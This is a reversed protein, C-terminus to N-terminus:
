GPLGQRDAIFDILDPDLSLDRARRRWTRAQDLHGRRLAVQALILAMRARLTPDAQPHDVLRLATQEAQDPRELILLAEAHAVWRARREPTDLPRDMRAPHSLLPLLGPYPADWAQGLVELVDDGLRDRGARRLAQTTALPRDRLTLRVAPPLPADPSLHSLSQVARDLDGSRIAATAALDHREARTLGQWAAAAEGRALGRGLTPAPAPDPRVGLIQFSQLDLVSRADPLDTGGIQITVPGDHVHHALSVRSDQWGTAPERIHCRALGEGADLSLRVHVQGLPEFWRTEARDVSAPERLAEGGCHLDLQTSGGGGILSLRLLALTEQGDTVALHLGSGFELAQVDVQADLVLFRGDWEAQHSLPVVGGLTDLRLTGQPHLRVSAPATLHWSDPLPQGREWTLGRARARAQQLLTAHADADAPHEIAELVRIEQDPHHARRWARAALPLADADGAAAAAELQHAAELVRDRALLVEGAWRHLAARHEPESLAVTGAQRAAEEALGGRALEQVRAATLGGAALEPVDISGTSPAPLRETGAGLVWTRQEPGPVRVILEDAADDDLQAAGLPVVGLLVRHELTGDALGRALLLGDREAQYHLAVDDLGDGDFDGVVPARLSVGEDVPIHQLVELRDGGDVLVYAGAPRGYPEDPGWVEPAPYQDVDVALLGTQGGVRLSVFTEVYGIRSRARTRWTGRERELIRIDYSWWPGVAAILEDQGDRDIDLLQLRMVDSRSASVDPAAPEPDQGPRWRLVRRDNLGLGLLVASGDLTHSLVPSDLRVTADLTDPMHGERAEHLEVLGVGASDDLTVVLPGQPGLPVPRSWAWEAGPPLPGTAWVPLGPAARALVMQGKMQDPLFILREGHLEMPFAGWAQWPTSSAPALARFLPAMPDDPRTRAALDLDHVLEAWAGRLAPDPGDLAELRDLTIGLAATDRADLHARAVARLVDERAGAKIFAEGVARRAHTRHGATRLRAAHDLWARAAAQTDRVTPDDTLAEILRNAEDFEDDQVLRDLTAGITQLRRSAEVEAQSAQWSSLGRGGLIVLGLLIAAALLSRGLVRNRWSFRRLLVWPTRPRAQVPFSDRLRCLEAALASADPYREDPETATAKRLIWPLDERTPWPLDPLLHRALQGLAWVDTTPGIADPQGQVSEPAMWGPTGARLAGSESPGTTALGFDMVKPLGEATVLINGPKLDRHVLGQRHAAGVAECVDILVDLRELPRASAAWDDLPVGLVREMAMWPAGDSVGAEYVQPVAPHVLRALADAEARFRDSYRRRLEPRLVKLAVRRRPHDQEADYVIGMGGAGLLGRVRWPGVHAPIDVADNPADSALDAALLPAAGELVPRDLLAQTRDARLLARVRRAVAEPVEGLRQDCAAEDEDALERFLSMARRELERGEEM